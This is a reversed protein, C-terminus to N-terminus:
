GSGPEPPRRHVRGTSAGVDLCRRGGPDLSFDELAAALKTGGRSAWQPGDGALALSAQEDVLTAARTAPMGGILVRGEAIARQAASRTSLLGRRM